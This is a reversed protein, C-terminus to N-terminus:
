EPRAPWFIEDPFGVQLHLDKLKQRYEMWQIREGKTISTNDVSVKDATQQLLVEIQTNVRDTKSVGQEPAPGIEFWGMDEHGAWSLDGM